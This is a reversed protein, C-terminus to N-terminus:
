LPKTRGAAHDALAKDALSKLKGSKSDHEIQRDWKQWAYEQFWERFKVFDSASLQQVQTEVHELTTMAKELRNFVLGTKETALDQNRSKFDWFVAAFGTVVPGTATFYSSNQM